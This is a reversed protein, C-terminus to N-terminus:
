NIRAIVNDADSGFTDVNYLFLVQDYGKLNVTKDLPLVLSRADVMTIHSYDNMLFPLFCHAYSDKIVLLSKGSKATTTIDEVPFIGNFFVSYKDKKALWSKFYISKYAVADKGIGITYSKLAACSKATFFDITDPTVSRYGSKSYLTGDFSNTAQTVNFGSLPPPTYGLAKGAAAYAYYAGLTTWHHDTRYYIYENKHQRLESSPDILSVGRLKSGALRIFAEQDITTAFPPLKGREIEAATPALLLFAPKGFKKAFTNIADLNSEYVSQVPSKVDDILCNNGLYVRDEGERQNDRKGILTIAGAKVTVWENRFAIHDSVFSDFGSMFQKSVVSNFSFEPFAALNRNEEESVTKYPSLLSILPIGVLILAFLVISFKKQM